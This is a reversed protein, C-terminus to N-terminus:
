RRRGRLRGPRGGGYTTFQLPRTGSAAFDSCAIRPPAASTPLEDAGVDWPATRIQADVDGHVVGNLTAGANWALSGAQIHLNETGAGADIFNLSAEARGFFGSGRPNPGIDSIFKGTPPAADGVINDGSAANWWDCNAANTCLAQGNWTVDPAQVDDVIINNRLVVYPNPTEATSVETWPTGTASGNRLFTNNFIRIRSGAGLPNQIHFANRNGRYVINNTIDAFQPGSSAIRISQGSCNRILNNRIVARNSPNSMVYDICHAGNTGGNRIELWELTPYTTQLLVARTTNAQNDLVVGAGSVGCHRNQGDATLTITHTADTTSGSLDVLSVGAATYPNGEKYVIGIESRNGTVLNGNAVPFYTCGVGSNICTSWAPLTAFQRSMTCSKNGIGTAGTFPASLRLQTESDVALVMYDTGDITIRDGRGCNASQWGAGPCSVVPSGNTLGERGKVAPGVFRTAVYSRINVWTEFTLSTGTPLTGDSVNLAAPTAAGQFDLAPGVKGVAGASVAGRRVATFANSTSDVHDGSEPFHFVERYSADWVGKKNEQSCTITADGYYMYIPTNSGSPHGLVAPVRVWAV